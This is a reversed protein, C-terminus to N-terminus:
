VGITKFILLIALATVDFISTFGITWINMPIVINFNVAVMNFAYILFASMIIKKLLNTFWDM